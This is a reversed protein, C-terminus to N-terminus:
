IFYVLHTNPNDGSKAVKLINLIKLEQKLNDPIICFQNIVILNDLIKKYIM